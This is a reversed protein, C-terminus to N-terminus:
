EPRTRTVNRNRTRSLTVKRPLGTNQCVTRSGFNWDIGLWALKIHFRDEAKPGECTGEQAATLSSVVKRLDIAEVPHSMGTAVFTVAGRFLRTTYPQNDWAQKAAADALLSEVAPCVAPCQGSQVREMCAASFQTNQVTM